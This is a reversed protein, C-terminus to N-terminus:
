LSSSHRLYARLRVDDGADLAALLAGLATLTADGFETRLEDEIARAAANQNALYDVGLPTLM